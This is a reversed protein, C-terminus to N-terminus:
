AQSRIRRSALGVFSVGLIGLAWAPIPADTADGTPTSSTQPASLNTVQLTESLVLNGGVSVPAPLNGTWGYNVEASSQPLVDVIQSYTQGQYQITTSGTVGSVSASDSPSYSVHWTTWANSGYALEVGDYGAAQIYPSPVTFSYSANFSIQYPTGPPGLLYFTYSVQDEMEDEFFLYTTEGMLYGLSPNHNTSLVLANGNAPAASISLTDTGTLIGPPSQIAYITNALAPAAGLYSYTQSQLASGFLPLESQTASIGVIVPQSHVLVPLLGIGAFLFPPLVERAWSKHM